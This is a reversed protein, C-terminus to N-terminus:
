GVAQKATARVAGAVSLDVGLGLDAVAVPMGTALSRNAAIGVAIAKM